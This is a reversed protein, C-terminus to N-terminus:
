LHWRRELTDIGALTRAIQESIVDEWEIGDPDENSIRHVATMNEKEIIGFHERAEPYRQDPAERIATLIRHLRWWLSTPHFDDAPATDPPRVSLGSTGASTLSAPLHDTWSFGVYLSVCPPQYAIWIRPRKRQELPIEVIMSTATNGWTFGSPSDHMCVTQVDPLFPHFQPGGLFTSEFHDRQVTMAFSVDIRGKMHELLQRVRRWRLHSAQRSYREHDGFVRAFDFVERDPRWWGLEAALEQIRSSTNTWSQRITPQNSIALYGRTARKAIWSRGTTELVWSERRDALLFANEYTGEAHPKGQVASGWQGYRELLDVIEEVAKEATAGRELGFRLLDMGTLGPQQGRGDLHRSRTYIATNGGAVGAENLGTEYGWCWYPRCGITALAGAEDPVHAYSCQVEHEKRPSRPPGCYLVQCEKDPRDSNKAFVVSGNTTANNMAVWADCM